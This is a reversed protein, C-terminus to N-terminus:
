ILPIVFRKDDHSIDFLDCLFVCLEDIFSDEIFKEDIATPRDNPRVNNILTPINGRLEIHKM